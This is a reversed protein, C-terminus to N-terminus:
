SAAPPFACFENGEPDAMIWWSIDQDPARLVTAGAAVLADPAPDTMTVDWHLRNKVTKPEPVNQFVFFEFPQGAGGTLAWYDDGPRVSGGLVTQWWRAQAAGDRADVVLEYLRAPRGDPVFVCFENGEPDTMLWWREDPRPELLVTAGAEVLPAITEDPGLRLDLHVRTKVPPPADPVENIWVITSDGIGPTLWWFEPHTRHPTREARLALQWFAATRARDSADVCIDKLSALTM